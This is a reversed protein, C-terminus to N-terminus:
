PHYANAKRFILVGCDLAQAGYCTRSAYRIEGAIGHPYKQVTRVASVNDIAGVNVLLQREEIPLEFLQGFPDRSGLVLKLTLVLNSALAQDM